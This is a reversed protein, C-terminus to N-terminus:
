WLLQGQARGPDQLHDVLRFKSVSSVFSFVCRTL